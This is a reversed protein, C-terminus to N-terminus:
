SDGPSKALRAVVNGQDRYVVTAGPPLTLYELPGVVWLWAMGKAPAWDTLDIPTGRKWLLRQSPDRFRPGGEKLEIMHIGPVAFHANILVDKKLVAYGGIHEQSNYGWVARPTVVLNAVRAGPPLHDVAALLRETELSGRRWDDTTIGLRVLFLAPALWLLWRPAQWTLALCGALLGSYILRADAFDGGFIHRPMAISGVLMIVMAWGLRGDIRRFALSVLLLLVIGAASAYDLWEIADRMAQKWIAWKFVWVVPGYSPLGKTGGGFLLAAFPLFLPWPALFASLAKKRHWEYAFVMIGLMGWGSVHLAWVALGVPMFVLPRWAKGELRIWGAFAFLAAAQALGFNLFGLIMAPSWIFCLALLSGIGIRRRLTWEVTLIALGTLLSVLGAIIRGAMELGFLAALPQVLLDAGLNGTWKWDFEYFRQLTANGDLELMVYYRALHAPYDVMQPYKAVLVPLCALLALVLGLWLGERPVPAQRLVALPGGARPQFQEFQPEASM